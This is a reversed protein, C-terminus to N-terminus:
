QCFSDTLFLVLREYRPFTPQVYGVLLDGLKPGVTAVCENNLGEQVTLDLDVVNCLPSVNVLRCYM